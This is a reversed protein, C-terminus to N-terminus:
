IGIGRIMKLVHTSVSAGEQIRCSFFSRSTEYREIWASEALFEKLHLVAVKLDKNQKQLELTIASPM